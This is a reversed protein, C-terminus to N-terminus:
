VGGQKKALKSFYPILFFSFVVALGGALLAVLGGALAVAVNQSASMAVNQELIFCWQGNRCHVM